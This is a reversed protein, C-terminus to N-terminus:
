DVPIMPQFVAENTDESVYSFLDIRADNIPNNGRVSVILDGDTNYTFVNHKVKQINVNLQQSAVSQKVCMSAFEQNSPVAFVISSIDDNQIFYPPDASFNSRLVYKNIGKRESKKEDIIELYEDVSIVIEADRKIYSSITDFYNPISKRRKFELVNKIDRTCELTLAYHLKKALKKSNLVLKGGRYLDIQINFYPSFTRKLLMTELTKYEYKEDLVTDSDLFNKIDDSTCLLKKNREMWKSLMFVAHAYLIQAVKKKTEFNSLLSDSGFFEKWFIYDPPRRSIPIIDNEINDGQPRTQIRIVIGEYECVLQRTSKGDNLQECVTIGYKACFNLADEVPWNVLFMTKDKVEPVLLPPLIDTYLTLNRNEFKVYLIRVKGFADFEQGIIIDEFQLKDYPMVKRYGLYMQSMENRIALLGQIISANRKFLTQTLDGKKLSVIECQPYEANDSESGMHEYVIVLSRNPDHVFELYGKNHRPIMIEIQDTDDNRKIVVINCKCYEEVARIYKSPDLYIDDNSMDKSLEYNSMDYCSQRCLVAFKTFEASKRIENVKNIRSSESLGEFTKMNNASIVADLFSSKSRAVGLRRFNIDDEGDISTKSAIMLLDKIKPTAEAVNNMPVFKNTILLYVQQQQGRKEKENLPEDFFYHRYISGKEQEQDPGFCCPLFPYKDKNDLPNNRLGPFNLNKNEGKNMCVFNYQTSGDGAKPFRMIKKGLAKLEEAKEDSVVDPQRSKQCYRAYDTPIFKLSLFPNKRTKEAEASKEKAKEETQNPFEPIFRRYRWVVEDYKLDYLTLFVALDDRFENISKLTKAKKIKVRLYPMNKIIIKEDTIDEDEARKKRTIVVKVPGDSSEYNIYISKKRTRTGEIQENISLKSSFVEDNLVLDAFISTNFDRNGYEFVGGIDEEVVTDITARGNNLSQQSYTTIKKVGEQLDIDKSKITVHGHVKNDTESIDVMVDSYKDEKGSSVQLIMKNDEIKDVWEKKYKDVKNFVKCTKSTGAFPVYDGLITENLVNDITESTFGYKIEFTTRTLRFKTMIDDIVIQEKLSLMMGTQLDKNVNKVIEDSINQNINAKTYNDDKLAAYESLFKAPFNQSIILENYEYPKGKLIPDTYVIFLKFMEDERIQNSNFKSGHRKVIENFFLPGERSMFRLFVNLLNYVQIKYPIGDKKAKIMEDPSSTNEYYVYNPLTKLISAIRSTLTERTDSDFVRIEIEETESDDFKKHVIAYTYGNM